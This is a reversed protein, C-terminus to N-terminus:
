ITVGDRRADKVKMYVVGRVQDDAFQQRTELLVDKAREATAVVSMDALRVACWWEPDAKKM